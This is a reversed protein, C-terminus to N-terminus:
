MIKKSPTRDDPIIRPYDSKLEAVWTNTRANFEPEGVSILNGYHQRTYRRVEEVVHDRSM